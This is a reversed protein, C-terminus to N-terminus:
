RFRCMRLEIFLISIRMIEHLQTLRAQVYLLEGLHSAGRRCQTKLLEALAVLMHRVITLAVSWGLSGYFRRSTRFAASMIM